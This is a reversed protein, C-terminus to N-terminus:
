HWPWVIPLLIFKYFSRVHGCIAVSDNYSLRKRQRRKKLKKKILKNSQQRLHSHLMLVKSHLAAALTLDLCVLLVWPCSLNTKNEIWIYCRECVLIILRDPNKNRIMFKLFSVRRTNIFKQMRVLKAVKYTNRALIWMTILGLVVCIFLVIWM